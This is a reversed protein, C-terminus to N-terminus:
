AQPMGIAKSLPYPLYPPQSLCKFGEGTGPRRKQPLVSGKVFFKSHYLTCGTYSGQSGRSLKNTNTDYINNNNDLAPKSFSNGSRIKKKVLSNKICGQTYLYILYNYLDFKREQKKKKKEKGKERKNWGM